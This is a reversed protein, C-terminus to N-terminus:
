AVVKRIYDDVLREQDDISIKSKIIEEARAMAKEVIEERLATKARNFEAEMNRQAQERLCCRGGTVNRKRNVRDADYYSHCTGNEGKAIPQVQPQIQLKIIEKEEHRATRGHKM